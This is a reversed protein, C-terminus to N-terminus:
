NGRQASPPALQAGHHEIIRRLPKLRDFAVGNAATVTQTEACWSARDLYSGAFGEDREAVVAARIEVPGAFGSREPASPRATALAEPLYGRWTEDRLFSDLGPWGYDGKLRTPDNACSVVAARLREATETQRAYAWAARAAPWKTFRRGKLPWLTAVEDFGDDGPERVSLSPEESPQVSPEEIDGRNSPQYGEIQPITVRSKLSPGDRSKLTPSDRMDLSPSRRRGPKAEVESRETKLRERVEPSRHLVYDNIGLTGDKRRRPERSIWGESWLWTLHREVTSRGMGTMEMIREVSPFCTWDEGSHDSGADGLVVLVFRPGTPLDSDFAWNLARNSM